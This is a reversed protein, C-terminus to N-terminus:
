VDFSNVMNKAIPRARDASGTRANPALEDPADATTVKSPRVVVTATDSPLPMTRGMVILGLTEPTWYVVVSTGTTTGTVM